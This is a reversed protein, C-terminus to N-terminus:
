QKTCMYKSCVVIYLYLLYFLVLLCLVIAAIYKAKESERMGTIMFQHFAKQSLDRVYANETNILLCTDHFPLSINCTAGESLHCFKGNAFDSMNYYSRETTFNYHLNSVPGHIVRIGAFYYTSANFSFSSTYHHIDSGNDANIIFEQCNTANSYDQRLFDNFLTYNTFHCVSAKSGGGARLNLTIESSVGDAFYSSSNVGEYVAFASVSVNHLSNTVSIMQHYSLATLDSCDVSYAKIKTALKTQITALSQCSKFRAALVTDDSLSVADHRIDDCRSILCVICVVVIPIPM